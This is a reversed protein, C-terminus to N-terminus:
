SPSLELEFLRRLEDRAEATAKDIRSSIQEVLNWVDSSLKMEGQGEHVKEGGEFGSILERAASIHEEASASVEALEGGAHGGVGEAREYSGQLFAGVEELFDPTRADWLGEKIIALKASLKTAREWTEIDKAELRIGDLRRMWVEIKAVDMKPAGLPTEVQLLQYARECISVIDRTRPEATM